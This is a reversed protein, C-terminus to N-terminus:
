VQSLLALSCVLLVSAATLLNEKSKKRDSASKGTCAFGAQAKIQRFSQEGGPM